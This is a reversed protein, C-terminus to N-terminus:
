FEGTEDVADSEHTSNFDHDMGVDENPGDDATENEGSSGTAPTPSAKALVGSARIAGAGVLALVLIAAIAVLIATKTRNV